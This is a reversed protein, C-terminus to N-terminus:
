CKAPVSSVRKAAWIIFCSQPCYRMSDVTQFRCRKSSAMRSPLKPALRTPRGVQGPLCRQRHTSEMSQARRVSKGSKLRALDLVKERYIHERGLSAFWVFLDYLFARHIVIGTTNSVASREGANSM